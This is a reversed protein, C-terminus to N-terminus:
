RTRTSVGEDALSELSTRGREDHGVRGIIATRAGLRAAAVAANIGGVVVVDWDLVPEM